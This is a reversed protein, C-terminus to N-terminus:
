TSGSSRGSSRGRASKDLSGGNATPYEPPRFSILEAQGVSGGATTGMCLAPVLCLGQGHLGEFARSDDSGGLRRGNLYFVVCGADRWDARKDSDGTNQAEDQPDRLDVYVGLEDGEKLRLRSAFSRWGDGSSRKGSKSVAWSHPNM